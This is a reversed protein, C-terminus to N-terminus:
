FCVPFVLLFSFWTLPEWASELWFSLVLFSFFFFFLIGFSIRRFNGIAGEKGNRDTARQQPTCEWSTSRSHTTEEATRSTRSCTRAHTQMKLGRTGRKDLEHM